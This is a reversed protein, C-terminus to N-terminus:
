RLETWGWVDALTPNTKPDIKNFQLSEESPNNWQEEDYQMSWKPGYMEFMRKRAEEPTGYIKVYRGEHLQGSGFTFYNNQEKKTM